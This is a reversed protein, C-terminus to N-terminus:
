HPCSASCFAVKYDTISPAITHFLKHINCSKEHIKHVLTGKGQIAAYIRQALLCHTFFYLTQTHAKMMCLPNVRKLIVLHETVFYM